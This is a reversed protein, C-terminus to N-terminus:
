QKPEVDALPYKLNSKAKFPGLTWSLSRFDRYVSTNNSLQRAVNLRQDHELPRSAAPHRCADGPDAAGNASSVESDMALLSLGLAGTVLLGSCLPIDPSCRALLVMALSLRQEPSVARPRWLLLIVLLIAMLEQTDQVPRSFLSSPERHLQALSRSLLVEAFGAKPRSGRQSLESLTVAFGLVAILAYRGRTWTSALWIAVFLLAGADLLTALSALWRAVIYQTPLAADSAQLALVRASVQAMSAAGVLGLVIGSARLRIPRLCIGTAHIAVLTGAIGLILSIEPTSPGVLFDLCAAIVLAIVAAAAPTVIFRHATTFRQDKCTIFALRGCVLVILFALLQTWFAGLLRSAELLKYLGSRSGPLAEALARGFVVALLASIVTLRIIGRSIPSPRSM